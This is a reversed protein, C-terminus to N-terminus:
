AVAVGWKKGLGREAKSLDSASLAAAYVCAESMYMYNLGVADCKGIQL